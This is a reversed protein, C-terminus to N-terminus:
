PAAVAEALLTELWTADAFARTKWTPMLRDLAVAQAMGSYYFRIDERGASRWFGSLGSGAGRDRAWPLSRLAM